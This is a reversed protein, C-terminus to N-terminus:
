KTLKSRVYSEIRSNLEEQVHKISYEVWLRDNPVDVLRVEVVVEKDAYTRAIYSAEYVYVSAKKIGDHLVTGGIPLKRLLEGRDVHQRSYQIDVYYLRNKGSNGVGVRKMYALTVEKISGKPPHLMRFHQVLGLDSKLLLDAHELSSSLEEGLDFGLINWGTLSSIKIDDTKLISKSTGVEEAQLASCGILCCAIGYLLTKKM